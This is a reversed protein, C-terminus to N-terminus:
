GRVGKNRACGLICTAVAVALCATAFRFLVISGATACSKLQPTTTQHRQLGGEYAQVRLPALLLNGAEEQHGCILCVDQAIDGFM